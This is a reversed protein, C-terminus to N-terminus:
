NTTTPLVIFKGSLFQRKEYTANYLYLDYVYEGPRISMKSPNARFKLRGEPLFEITGEVTSFALKVEESDHRNKIHMLAEEYILFDFDQYEKTEKVYVVCKLTSDLSRKHNVILDIEVDSRM